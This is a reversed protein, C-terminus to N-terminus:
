FAFISSGKKIYPDIVEFNIVLYHQFYHCMYLCTDKFPSNNQMNPYVTM